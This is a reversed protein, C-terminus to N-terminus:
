SSAGHVPNGTESPPHAEFTITGSGDRSAQFVKIGPNLANAKTLIDKKDADTMAAGLYLETIEEPHYALTNWPPEGARLPIALRYEDEHQWDLTKAFVVKDIITRIRAEQDSFLSGALFELTDDYLSPRKERYVVPQFLQFKSDKAV